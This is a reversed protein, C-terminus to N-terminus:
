TVEPCNRIKSFWPKRAKYAVCTSLIIRERTLFSSGDCHRFAMSRHVLRMQRSIESIRLGKSETSPSSVNGGSRGQLPLSFIPFLERVRVLSETGAEELPFGPGAGLKQRLAGRGWIGTPAPCGM